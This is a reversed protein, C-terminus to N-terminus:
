VPPEPSRQFSLNYSVLDSDESVFGLLERAHRELAVRFYFVRIIGSMVLFQDERIWFHQTGYLSLGSLKTIPLHKRGYGRIYPRGGKGTVNHLGIYGQRSDPMAIWYIIYIKERFPLWSAQFERPGMGYSSQVFLRVLFPPTLPALLDAKFDRLIHRM